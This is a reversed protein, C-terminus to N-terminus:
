RGHAVENYKRQAHHLVNVADEFEFQRIARKLELFDQSFASHFLNSNAEFLDVSAGNDDELLELLNQCTTALVASDVVMTENEREPPLHTDIAAIVDDLSLEFDPLMRGSDNGSRIAQEVTAAAAQLGVAGITGAVGKVTHAVREAAGHDNEDLLRRIDHAANRHGSAFMRLMSIYRSKVGKVRRLGQSIDIGTLEDPLEEEFTAGHSHTPIDTLIISRPKIWKLLVMEWLQDPEIPKSIYDNMGAALCSDRDQPMANATMAIVPLEAWAPNKRIEETARLGDMVPMQIDMLVLEYSNLRLLELAARGNVATDVRMGAGILLEFAVEQNIDNDEVLLIKAGGITRLREELSESQESRNVSTIKEGFLIQSIVDFLPSPLVPKTLVAAIIGEVWPDNLAMNYGLSTVLIVQPEPMLGCERILCAAELGDMDPLNHALLIIRYPCNGDTARRVEELALKGSPVGSVELSLTRVTACLDDRSIDSGDVVLVRCGPTDFSHPLLHSQGTSTRGVRVTFWFTSGIGFSSDVGVSGGMLEALRKSIALGLGTGGYKRTTSTDAQQFSKFLMMQQEQTLGIGTDRVEFYLTLEQSTCEKVRVAICIQGRETFKLANSGYNLLIQQIRLSDGVINEPVDPAIEFNLELKKGSAREILFGTVSDMSSKLNFEAQEITFKGAEIKSYDLIDNIISMLHNSSSQIKTLYERLRPAPEAKLALHSIGLIANMPTRIEHSMNALFDSKIRNAMEAGDKAVRLAEAAAREETIDEFIAVLGKAPESDNLYRAKTRAWFMSGDKRILPLGSNQFIRDAELGEMIKHNIQEYSEDNAYWCRTSKGVLEGTGYGFFKEMNDNCRLVIRDKILAIGTTTADFIARQEEIAAEAYEKARQLELTRERVRQELTRNQESVEEEMKKRVTIDEFVGLLIERKGMSDLLPFKSTDGWMVSGDARRITEIIHRKEQQSNMVAQDDTRYGESADSGWPLDFDTKGIIEEPKDFGASMAFNRNCGLFRGERDKWFISHPITDMITTLMNRSLRLNEYPKKISAIFIGKYILLFALIKYIHGLVNFTDFVSKYGSFIYECCVCLILASLYYPVQSEGVRLLRRWYVIIAVVLLAMIVYESFIKFTTLGVGAVFTAPIHGPFFTVGVFVGASIGLATSLMVSKSLWWRSFGPYIFSGALFSGASVMRAAIWFQTSKNPNNATILDPMGAYGLLHMSDLLGIALFAVSLFLTHQDGDQDYAYWGVSFITFSVIVSFVETVNHFVLYTATDAVRYLQSQFYGILFFPAVTLLVFGTLHRKSVLSSMPM